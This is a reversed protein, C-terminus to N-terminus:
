SYYDLGVGQPKPIQELSSASLGYSDSTTSSELSCCCGSVVPGMCLPHVSVWVLTGASLFPNPLQPGHACPFWSHEVSLDAEELPSVYSRSRGLLCSCHSDYSTTDVSDTHGPWAAERLSMNIETLRCDTKGPVMMPVVKVRLRSGWSIWPIQRHPLHQKYEVLTEM